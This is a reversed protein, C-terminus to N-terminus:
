DPHIDRPTCGAELVVSLWNVRAEIGHEALWAAQLRYADPEQAAPCYWHHPVQRHHVLEHLLVSVDEPNRPDWPRVLLIEAREADYLGRLRGHALGQPHLTVMGQRAAAEGPGVLRIRPAHERRPHEIRDDIWTELRAVLTRLDPAIRWRAVPDQPTPLAPGATALMAVLAFVATACALAPCYRPM